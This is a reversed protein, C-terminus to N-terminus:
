VSWYNSNLAIAISLGDGPAPPNLTFWLLAESKPPIELWSGEVTAPLPLQRAGEGFRGNVADIVFSQGIALSFDSALWQTGCTLNEITLTLGDLDQGSANSMQILPWSPATGNNELIVSYVSNIADPLPPPAAGQAWFPMQSRLTSRWVAQELGRQLQISPPDVPRAEITRSGDFISLTKAGGTMAKILPDIRAQLTQGAAAVTGELRIERGAFRWNKVEQEANIPEIRQHGVVVTDSLSTVVIGNEPQLALPGYTPGYDTM